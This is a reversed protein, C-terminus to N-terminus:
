PAPPAPPADKQAPPPANKPPKRGQIHLEVRRNLARAEDTNAHDLPRSRGFGKSALRNKDVGHKVLWKVVSAARRDSLRMNYAETGRDDTHGEVRVRSIEPHEILITVVAGLVIDSEPLIVDSDFKFQVQKSIKIEDQEIRAPPCGNTKPDDTKEGPVDPCADEADIIGDKDRDSPPPPCGNTKPDNTRVGPVDPCADEADIIGDKDRDPPCGNTKPDDTKVGPVDPCADEADVIGDHDRDPPPPPCGNTAPDDTRIGPVDPCADEADLIGDHDRDAPPPPPCPVPEHYAAVYEASLVFRVEPTGFARTLGPGVGGGVRWEPAVAYHAGFLIELPTTHRKFFADADEIGTALSLEPGAVLKDDVARVGAAAGFFVQSGTPSGAFRDNQARYAIGLRGAYEFAGITGAALVRPVIRVKGDGTFAARDGTPVYLQVGGGVSVPQGYRGWALADIGLRVDGFSAGSPATFFQGSANANDGAQYLAIPVQLGVRARDWLVLAGGFYAYLADSVLATHETGDPAYTVLPKRAWDGVIGGAPRLHGRFDMSEETFWDSGRESPDFRDLAFGSSQAFADRANLAAVFVAAIAIPLRHNRM